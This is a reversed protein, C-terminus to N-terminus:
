QLYRHSDLTLHRIARMDMFISNAPLSESSVGQHRLHDSL